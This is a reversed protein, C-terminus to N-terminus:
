RLHLDIVDCNNLEMIEWPWNIEKGGGGMTLIYFKSFAFTYYRKFNLSFFFFTRVIGIGIFEDYM